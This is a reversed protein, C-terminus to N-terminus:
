FQLLKPSSKKIFTKKTGIESSALADSGTGYIYMNKLKTYLFYKWMLQQPLRNM